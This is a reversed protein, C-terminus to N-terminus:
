TALQKPLCTCQHMYPADQQLCLCLLMCCKDNSYSELVRQVATACAPPATLGCLARVAAVLAHLAPVVAQISLILQLSHVVHLVHLVSVAM